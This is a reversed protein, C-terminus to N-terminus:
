RTLYWAIRMGVMMNSKDFLDSFKTDYWYDSPANLQIYTWDWEFHKWASGFGARLSYGGEYSDDCVVNYTGGFKLYFLGSTASVKLAGYIPLHFVPTEECASVVGPSIGVELQLVDRYNGLRCGVIGNAYWSNNGNVSYGSEFGIAMNVWGGNRRRRMKRYNADQSINIRVERGGAKVKMWDQKSYSSSNAYCGLTFGTSTKNSIYCWSPKYLTEYDEMNTNVRITERGGYQGFNVSVKESMNNVLLSVSGASQSIDVRINKDGSKIVFYDERYTIQRNEDVKLTLTNGNKTLHGWSKMGTEIKWSSTSTVTFTKIGGSATFNAFTSSIEFKPSVGSQTINVRINKNGSKIIFYDDRDLEQQNVDVKLTLTNGNKTLHGWSKTGTEIKWSSTSTVTFTKIGGSATFNAFTSSIEFKSSAGLQTINVRINKNGSKIIFYDDRNSDQQNADVKLTLTNGNKTLHGWPKTGTEIKWSSTSTVTFTKIGGSATFNASTSSIEFKPSVGSQTINVRINKNGSKITFYDNRKSIQQNADVKLTLTNGNKTLHGWSNTGTAIEWSLTSTVTFTKTGGSAMFNAINPSIDLISMAEQVINIKITKGISTITFSTKRNETSNNSEVRLEIEGRTITLHAWSAPYEKISWPNDAIVTFTKFGGNEGFNAIKSSVEFRSRDITPIKQASIQCILSLWCFLIIVKKM